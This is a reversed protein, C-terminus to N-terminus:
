INTTPDQFELKRSSIYSIVYKFTTYIIYFQGKVKLVVFIIKMLRCIVYFFFKM